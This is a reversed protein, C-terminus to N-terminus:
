SCDIDIMIINTSVFSVISKTCKISKLGEDTNRTNAISIIGVVTQLSGIM